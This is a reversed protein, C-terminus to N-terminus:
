LSTKEAKRDISRKFQVYVAFCMIIQLVTSCPTALGILFLSGGGFHQMVFAVPIRVLFAGAIGQIMVFGTKAIGNYFGIFCFLFCTLLCDIAYAKLYDYAAAVTGPKNSFIGALLDGRFFTMFFMVVGFFVSVAIGTRLTKVARDNHGAGYNQAVFASMSQMFAAPVLMIFGCVKQAVGVGASETVGINNVIALMVLFSIGVLFDQLAIPSGIRIINMAYHNEIKLYTRNLEFPLEKMKIIFFSIVVSILQAIVTAIAAGSAGLHMVSVFFLDGIINFVCAIGVAILPTKSDGLGRFISGLLNYATIILFGGGCIRIYSKTLDFAEKPAQMVFALGGAGIISILTFLVGTLAFIILGTGIIKSAEKPRGQGIKQGVAVTIGMSFSVILNTLTQVIQSGTSVASVDADTGFRGVVLLDVAGYLSQLFMAFLVPLMFRLLKPLIAGETFNNNKM